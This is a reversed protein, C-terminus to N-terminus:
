HKQFGFDFGEKAVKAGEHHISRSEFLQSLIWSTPEYLAKVNRVPFSAQIPM